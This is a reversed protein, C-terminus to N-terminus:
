RGINAQSCSSLSTFLQQFQQQRGLPQPRSAADDDQGSSEPRRSGSIALVNRVLAVHDPRGPDFADDILPAQPLIPAEHDPQQADLEPAHSHSALPPSVQRPSDHAAVSKEAAPKRRGKQAKTQKEPQSIQPLEQATCKSVEIDAHKKSANEHIDTLLSPHSGLYLSLPM